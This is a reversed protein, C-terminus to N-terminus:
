SLGVAKRDEISCPMCDMISLGQLMKPIEGEINFPVLGPVLDTVKMDLDKAFRYGDGDSGTTQYSFGGTAVIVADANVTKDSLKIGKVMGNDTIIDKVKANLKIEVGYEKLIRTLGSIVDSSKDSEPFVRNGREIKTAVGADNLMRVIDENSFSNFASYLFRNNKIVNKMVEEMSSANTINCRGKGTIFIKKGLKDNKEYITAEHGSMAAGIAALMGSAGGGIIAVKSM